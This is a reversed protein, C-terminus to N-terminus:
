ASRTSTSSANVIGTGLPRAGSTATSVSGIAIPSWAAFGAYGAEAMVDAQADAHHRAHLDSGCIGCRTVDLVLQGEGPVPEPIEAVCLRAHQSVVAKM